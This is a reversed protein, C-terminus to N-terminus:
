FKTTELLEWFYHAGSLLSGGGGGSLLSDGWFYRSGSLLSGWHSSIGFTVLSAAIPVKCYGTLTKM